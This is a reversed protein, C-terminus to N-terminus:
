GDLSFHFQLYGNYIRYGTPYIHCILQIFRFVMFLSGLFGGLIVVDGGNRRYVGFDKEGCQATASGNFVSIYFLSLSVSPLFVLPVPLCRTETSFVLLLGLPDLPVFFPM